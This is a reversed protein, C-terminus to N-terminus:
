ENYFSYFLVFYFSLVKDGLLWFLSLHCTTSNSSLQMQLVTLCEEVLEEERRGKHALDRSISEWVNKCLENSQTSQIKKELSELLSHSTRPLLIRQNDTRAETFCTPSHRLSLQATYMERKRDSLSSLFCLQSSLFFSVREEGDLSEM